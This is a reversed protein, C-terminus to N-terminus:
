EPGEKLTNESKYVRGCGDICYLTWTRKGHEKFQIDFEKEICNKHMCFQHMQVANTESNTLILWMKSKLMLDLNQTEIQDKPKCSKKNASGIQIGAKNLEISAKFKFIDGIRLATGPAEGPISGSLKLTFTSKDAAYRLGLM